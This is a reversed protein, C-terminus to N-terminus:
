VDEKQRVLYVKKWFAVPGAFDSEVAKIDINGRQIHELLCGESAWYMERYMMELGIGPIFDGPDLASLKRGAHVSVYKEM